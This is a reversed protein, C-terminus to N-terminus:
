GNESMMYFTIEKKNDGIRIDTIKEKMNLAKLDIKSKDSANTFVIKANQLKKAVLLSKENVESFVHLDKNKSLLLNIKTFINELFTLIFGVTIIPMLIFLINMLIFYMYGNADNMNIESLIGLDQGMGGCKIAYFFSALMRTFINEYNQELPFVLITMAIVGTLLAIFVNKKVSKKNKYYLFYIIIGIIITLFALVFTTKM